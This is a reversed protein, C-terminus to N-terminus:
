EKIVAKYVEVPFNSEIISVGDEIINRYAQAKQEESDLKDYTTATAILCRVGHLHLISYLVKNEERITTGICAFMQNFPIGIRRYADIDDPSRMSISFMRQRNDEFYFRADEPSRVMNIVYNNADYKRIIDAIMRLPVDKKDLVLVTKGRAWELVEALTPIKYETVEGKVNKLHLQQLEKWTHDIVKGKGTSNRELTADHFVIIMSDKTLRPDIEFTAPIQELVYEFAAISNEPLGNEITGRHGQIIPSALKNYQFFSYLAENDPFSLYNIEKEQTSPTCTTFAILVCIILIIQKM